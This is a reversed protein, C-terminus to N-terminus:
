TRALNHFAHFSLLPFLSPCQWRIEPQWGPAARPILADPKAKVFAGRLAWSPASAMLYADTSYTATREGHPAGDAGITSGNVAGCGDGCGVSGFMSDGLPPAFAEVVPASQNTCVSTPFRYPGASSSVIREQIASPRTAGSFRTCRRPHDVQFVAAFTKASSFSPFALSLPSSGPKITSFDGRTQRERPRCFAFGRRIASTAVSPIALATNSARQDVHDIAGSRPQGRKGSRRWRRQALERRTRSFFGRCLSKRKPLTPTQKHRGVM